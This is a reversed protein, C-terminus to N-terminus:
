GARAFLRCLGDFTWLDAATAGPPLGVGLREEARDIVQVLRFSDFGPLDRLSGAPTPDDPGLVLVERLIRALEVAVVARDAGPQPVWSVNEVADIAFEADARLQRGLEAIVEPDARGTREARRQAVFSQLMLGQWAEVRDDARAVPLGVCGLWRSHLARERALLWIDLVLEDLGDATASRQLAQALYGDIVPGAVRAAAANGALVEASTLPPPYEAFELGAAVTPGSLVDDLESPGIERVVPLSPGWPTVNHYGDIMLLEDDAVEILVSHDLHRRGAYPLWPMLFADGVLYILGSSPALARIDRSTSVPRPKDTVLGLLRRGDDLREEIGAAVVVSGAVVAPLRWNTGLALHADPGFRHVAALALSTQLCDLLKLDPVDVLRAWRDAQGDSGNM